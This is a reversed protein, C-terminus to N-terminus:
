YSQPHGAVASSGNQFRVPAAGFSCQFRGPESQTPNRDFESQCVGAIALKGFRVPIARSRLNIPFQESIWIFPACRGWCRWWWRRWWRRWWRLPRYGFEVAIPNFLLIMLPSDFIRRSGGGEGRGEEERGGRGGGWEWIGFCCISGLFYIVICVVQDNIEECRLLLETDILLSVAGDTASSWNETAM